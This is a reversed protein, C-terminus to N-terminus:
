VKTLVDSPDKAKGGHLIRYFFWFCTLVGRTFAKADAAEYGDKYGQDYAAQEWDQGVVQPYVQITDM